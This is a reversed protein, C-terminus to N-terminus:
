SKQAQRKSREGIMADAIRYAIEAFVPWSQMSPITRSNALIAAMARGAFWDLMSMGPEPGWGFEDLNVAGGTQNPIAKPAVPFAPGGDNM